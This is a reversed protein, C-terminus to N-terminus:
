THNKPFFFRKAIEVSLIYLLVILALTGYFIMPLPVFGFFPVYPIFLVGIAIAAIALSLLRGPKSSLLSHRTRIAFVVLTASVVSEVFWGTQFLAEDAKLFFILVGFTLYDFLSSILGFVLMFRRIFHLDWKVPRHVIDEDVRDSAIAMEPVDTMLNVLLVQKPLLPLFPLFLSIGAM